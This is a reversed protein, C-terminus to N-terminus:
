HKEMQKNLANFILGPALRSLLKLLFAQGPAIEYQNKAFAAVFKTALQEPEMMNLEQYEEMMETRVPPPILEFVKVASNKLQYRLSRSWSHM